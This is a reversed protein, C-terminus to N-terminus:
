ANKVVFLSPFSSITFALWAWSATVVKEKEHKEQAAQLQSDIERQLADQAQQVAQTEAELSARLGQTRM